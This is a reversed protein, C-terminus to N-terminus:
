AAKAPFGWGQARGSTGQSPPKDGGKWAAHIKDSRVGDTVVVSLTRDAKELSQVRGPIRPGRQWTEVGDRKVPNRCYSFGCPLMFGTDGGEGEM